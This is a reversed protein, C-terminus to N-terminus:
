SMWGEAKCHAVFDDFQPDDKKCYAIFPKSPAEGPTFVFETAQVVVNGKKSLFATYM